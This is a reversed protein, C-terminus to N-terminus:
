HNSKRKGYKDKFYMYIINKNKQYDNSFLNTYDLLLLTFTKGIIM